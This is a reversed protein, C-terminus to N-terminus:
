QSAPRWAALCSPPLPVSLRDPGQSHTLQQPPLLRLSPPGLWGTLLHCAHQKFRHEAPQMSAPVPGQGQRWGAEVRGGGQWDWGGAAAKAPLMLCARRSPPSVPKTWPVPAILSPAAWPVSRRNSCTMSAIVGASFFSRASNSAGARRRTAASTPAVVL